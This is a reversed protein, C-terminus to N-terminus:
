GMAELVKQIAGSVRSYQALETQLQKKGVATLRYYRARRNGATLAKVRGVWARTHLDQTLEGLEYAAVARDLAQPLRGALWELM